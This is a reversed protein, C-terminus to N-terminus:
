AYEAIEKEVNFEVKVTPENGPFQKIDKRNVDKGTGIANPSREPIYFESNPYSDNLAIAAESAKMMSPETNEKLRRFNEMISEEAIDFFHLAATKDREFELGSERNRIQEDLRSLTCTMAWLHIATDAIWSQYLQRTVVSEQLRLSTTKFTDSHERTLFGIRDAINQLSSDVGEVRPPSPKMRALLQAGLPIARKQIKWNFANKTIRGINAGLGEDSNWLMAAQIGLMQEALQKGGYAFVFTHMVENAGEVITYIRSDRFAREVENETMYGEGGMIQVVDNIVRWGMESCFVKTAATEVMIDKDHRDLIQTTMYLVSEMAYSLASMHAIKAKVLDFDALPRQFQYRTTAWKIGQDMCKKAAGLMGASLTCRGYNLCTLAVKLGEGEKHLLNKVPVKVKTLKIRAQWTGRIGCKSRNNEIIEFGEMDPTCILANVGKLFDGDKNMRKAIITFVGSVAGSTNWKKEGNLVYHTGDDSLTCYSEQGGADCGVNPESLGFGSLFERAVKPLWKDKQEENGFLMIAKCGISQHASVIVSTSGCSAGIRQLVRNYSTVGLGLGNYKVPVTLGMVGMEFLREFVWAPIREEQDIQISPHENEFYTDLEELLTDCKAREEPSERPYPFVLDNRFRGWFLNKIFGMESPEPGLMAEAEEIMQRDKDSVNKLDKLLSSMRNKSAHNQKNSLPLHVLAHTLSSAESGSETSM